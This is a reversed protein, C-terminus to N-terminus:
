IKMQRKLTNNAEGLLNENSPPQHQLNHEAAGLPKVRVRYYEELEIPRIHLQAALEGKAYFLHALKSDSSVSAKFTYKNVPKNTHPDFKVNCLRSPYAEIVINSETFHLLINDEETLELLNSCSALQEQIEIKVHLNKM